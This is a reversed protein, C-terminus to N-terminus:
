PVRFHFVWPGERGADYSIEFTWTGHQGLLRDYTFASFLAIKGDERKGPCERQLLLAWGRFAMSLRTSGMSSSSTSLGPGAQRRDMGEVSVTLGRVRQDRQFACAYRNVSINARTPQRSTQSLSERPCIRPLERPFFALSSFYEEVM